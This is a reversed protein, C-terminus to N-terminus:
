YHANTKQSDACNQRLRLYTQIQLCCSTNVRTDLLKWIWRRQFTLDRFLIKDVANPLEATYNYCIISIFYYALIAWDTYHSAVNKVTRPDFGLPPLNKRVRVSRCHPRDLIRYFPYRTEKGPTFCGPRPRLWVSGDLASTLSLTSSSGSQATMAQLPFQVKVKIKKFPHILFNQTSPLHLPRLLNLRFYIFDELIFYIRRILPINFSIFCLTIVSLEELQMLIDESLILNYGMFIYNWISTEM